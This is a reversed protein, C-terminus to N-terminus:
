SAAMVTPEPRRHAVPAPRQWTGRARAEPRDLLGPRDAARSLNHLPTFVRPWGPLLYVGGAALLLQLMPQGVVERLLRWPRHQCPPTLANPGEAQQRRVAAAACFGVVSGPSDPIMAVM